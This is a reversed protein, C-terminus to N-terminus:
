SFRRAKITASENRTASIIGDTFKKDFKLSEEYRQRIMAFESAIGYGLVRETLRVPLIVEDELEYAEPIYRYNVIANSLRNVKIYDHMVRYEVPNGDLTYVCKIAYCKRPLSSLPIKDDVVAVKQEALYPIFQEAIQSFISNASHVLLRTDTHTDDDLISDDIELLICTDKLIERLTM